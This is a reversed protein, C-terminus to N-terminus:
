EMNPRALGDLLKEVPVSHDDRHRAWREYVEAFGLFTDAPLGVERCAAAIEEMEGSWRWGAGAARLLAGSTIPRARGGHEWERILADEVVSARALAQALAGLAISGKSWAAYAMKLASATGVDPGLVEAAVPSGDFLAAVGAAGPGSLHLRPASPPGIVSGDVLTAHGVPLDRARGPSIANADVYTGRFGAAAVSAAVDFAAAPPCLSIIVAADGALAALWDVARLGAADARAATASSRGDRCWIVEHGVGVLAAGVASGMAGPHLMGVTAM